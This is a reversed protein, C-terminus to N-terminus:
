IDKLKMTLQRVIFGLAENKHNAADNRLWEMFCSDIAEERHFGKPNPNESDWIEMHKKISQVVEEVCATMRAIGHGEATVFHNAGNWLIKNIPVSRRGEKTELIVYSTGHERYEAVVKVKKLNFIVTSGTEVYRM